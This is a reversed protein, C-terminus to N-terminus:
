NKLKNNLMKITAEVAAFIQDCNIGRTSIRKINQAEDTYEWVTNTQVIADTKGGPPITVIYDVLHPVAIGYEFLVEKLANMFADYGGDGYCYAEKEVGKYSCKIAAFPKLRYTTNIM